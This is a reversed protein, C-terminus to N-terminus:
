TIVSQHFLLFGTSQVPFRRVGIQQAAAILNKNGELRARADREAAAKM